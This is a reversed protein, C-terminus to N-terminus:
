TFRSAKAKSGCWTTPSRPHSPQEQGGFSLGSADQAKIAYNVANGRLLVDIDANAGKM